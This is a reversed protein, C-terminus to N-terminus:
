SAEQNNFGEFQRRLDDFQRQLWGGFSEDYVTMADADQGLPAVTESRNATYGNVVLYEQDASTASVFGLDQARRQLRALSQLEAIQLRLEENSRELEDRQTLLERMERGRSAETAVQSLYLVGLILAVFIGLTGIAFVQRQPRWGARRLSNQLWNNARTM